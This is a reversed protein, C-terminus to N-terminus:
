RRGALRMATTWFVASSEVVADTDAHECLHPHTSALAHIQGGITAEDARRESSGEPALAEHHKELLAVATGTDGCAAAMVTQAILAHRAARQRQDRTSLGFSLTLCLAIEDRGQDCQGDRHLLTARERRWTLANAPERREHADILRGCVTIADVLLGQERSVDVLTTMASVTLPDEPGFGTRASRDAFLAWLLQDDPDILATAAYITAAKIVLWDTCTTAPDYRHLVPQLVDAAARPACQDYLYDAHVVARALARRHKM